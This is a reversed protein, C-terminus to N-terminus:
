ELYLFLKAYTMFKLPLFYIWLINEDKDILYLNNKGQFLTEQFFAYIM